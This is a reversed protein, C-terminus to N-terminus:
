EGQGRNARYLEERTGAALVRSPLTRGLHQALRRSARQVVELDVGTAVGLEDCLNVLEETALNGTAGRLIPCGGLGGFASDFTDVGLEMAALANAPALGRTDHLHLRLATDPLAGRVEAVIRRVLHPHALGATDALGIERAGASAVRRALRVIEGTELQGEFPCGFTVALTVAVPVAPSAEAARRATRALPAMPAGQGRRVRRRNYTETAAIVMHLADVGAGLAREAGRLNPVLASYRVGPARAIDAMVEAADRLQPIAEPHVFSTAEIEALGSRSLVDILEIKLETPLFGPEMQFGDRPGVEVIRVREPLAPSTAAALAESPAESPGASGDARRDSAM